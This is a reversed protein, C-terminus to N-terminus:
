YDGDDDAGKGKGRPKALDVVRVDVFPKSEAYSREIVDAEVGNEAGFYLLYWWSWASIALYLGVTALIHYPLLIAFVSPIQKTVRYTEISRKILNTM